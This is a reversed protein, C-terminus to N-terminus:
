RRGRRSVILGSASVALLALAVPHARLRRLRALALDIRSLTPSLRQWHVALEDRQLAVLARLRARRQAASERPPHPAGIRRTPQSM